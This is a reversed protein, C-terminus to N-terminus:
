GAGAGGAQRILQHLLTPDFPTGVTAVAAFDGQMKRRRALGFDVMDARVGISQATLQPRAQGRRLALLQVAQQLFEEVLQVNDVRCRM